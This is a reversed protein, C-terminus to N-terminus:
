NKEKTKTKMRPVNIIGEEALHKLIEGLMQRIETIQRQLDHVNISVGTGFCDMCKLNGGGLKITYGFGACNNCIAGQKGRANKEDQPVEIVTRDKTEVSQSM